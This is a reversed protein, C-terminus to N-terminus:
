RPMVFMGPPILANPVVDEFTMTKTGGGAFTMRMTELLLSERDVWLDLKTMTERIQRRKPTMTVYYSGPTDSHRTDDIDFERRLDAASGDIFQKQVRGMTTAIDLTRATPWSSTLTKDSIVIVRADPESYRLAVRSPREVLVMGRAVLPKVLLASTTTETFRATLTKMAANRRQGQEYMEDFSQTLPDASAVRPQGAQPAVVVVCSVLLLACGVPHLCVRAISRFVRSARQVVM